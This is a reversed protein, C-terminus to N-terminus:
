FYCHISQVSVFWPNVEKWEKGKRCTIVPKIWVLSAGFVGDSHEAVHFSTFGADWCVGWINGAFGPPGLGSGTGVIRDPKSGVHVTSSFYPWWISFKKMQANFFFVKQQETTIWTKNKTWMHIWPPAIWNRLQESSAAAARTWLTAGSHWRGSYFCHPRCLHWSCCGLSLGPRWLCWRDPASLM